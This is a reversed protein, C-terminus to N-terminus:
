DGTAEVPGGPRAPAGGENEWSALAESDANQRRWISPLYKESSITGAEIRRIIVVEEQYDAGEAAEMESTAYNARKLVRQLASRQEQPASAQSPSRFTVM